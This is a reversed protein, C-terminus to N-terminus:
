AQVWRCPPKNRRRAAPSRTFSASRSQGFIASSISVKPRESRPASLFQTAVM